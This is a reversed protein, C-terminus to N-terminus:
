QPQPLRGSWYARRQSPSSPSDGIGFRGARPRLSRGGIRGHHPSCRRPSRVSRVYPPRWHPISTATTPLRLPRSHPFEVPRQCEPWATACWTSSDHDPGQAWPQPSYLPIPEGARGHHTRSSVPRAPNAPCRAPNRMGATSRTAACSTSPLGSWAPAPLHPRARTLAWAPEEPGRSSRTDTLPRINM